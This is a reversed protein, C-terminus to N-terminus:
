KGWKFLSSLIGTGSKKDEKKQPLNKNLKKEAIKLEQLKKTISM